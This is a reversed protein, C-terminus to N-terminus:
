LLDDIPTVHEETPIEMGEPLKTKALSGFFGDAEEGSYAAVQAVVARMISDMSVSYEYCRATLKKLQDYDPKQMRIWVSRKGEFDLIMFGYVELQDGQKTFLDNLVMVLDDVTRIKSKSKEFAEKLEDPLSEDYHRILKDLEAKSVIGMERAVDQDPFKSQLEEYMKTFKEPDIDGKIVNLRMNQFKIQDETMDKSICPIDNRGLTRMAQLRHAGGVVTFRDGAPAVVVPELFGGSQITDVLANFKDPSMRNPNWDVIDLLSEDLMVFKGDKAKM